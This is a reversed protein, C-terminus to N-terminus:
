QGHPLLSDDWTEGANQWNSYKDMSDALSRARFVSLPEPGGEVLRALNPLREQDLLPDMVAWTAGDLGIILTKM